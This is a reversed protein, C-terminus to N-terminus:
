FPMEWLLYIELKCHFDLAGACEQAARHGNVPDSEASTRVALGQEM